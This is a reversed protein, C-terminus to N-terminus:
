TKIILHNSKPINTLTSNNFLDNFYIELEFNLHNTKNMSIENSGFM